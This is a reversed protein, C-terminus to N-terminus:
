SDIAALTPNVVAQLGYYARSVTVLALDDAFRIFEIGEPVEMRLVDDYFVNWLIPGLVSSQPVGGTVIRTMTGGSKTSVLLNRCELYSRIIRFLSNPM